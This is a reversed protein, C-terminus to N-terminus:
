IVNKPRWNTQGKLVRITAILIYIPTNLYSFMNVCVWSLHDSFGLWFYAFARLGNSYKAIPSPLTCLQFM